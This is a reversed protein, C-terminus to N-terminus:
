ISIDLDSKAEGDDPESQLSDEDEPPAPDHLEVVDTPEDQSEQDHRRRRDRQHETPAVRDAMRSYPDVRQINPSDFAM